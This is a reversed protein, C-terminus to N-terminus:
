DNQRIQSSKIAVYVTIPDQYDADDIWSDKINNFIVGDYKEKDLNGVVEQTSTGYPTELQDWKAGKADIILPNKISLYVEYVYEGNAYGDANFYDDTFYIDEDHFQDIEIKSGHFVMLPNGKQDIVKSGKFWQEFDNDFNEYLKIHKM